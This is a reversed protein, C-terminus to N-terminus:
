GDGTIGHANGGVLCISDVCSGRPIEQGVEHCERLRSLSCLFSHERCPDTYAARAMQDIGDITQDPQEPDRTFSIVSDGMVGRGAFLEPAPVLRDSM